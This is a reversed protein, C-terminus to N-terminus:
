RIEIQISANVGRAFGEGTVLPGTLNQGQDGVMAIVSPPELDPSWARTNVQLVYRGPDALVGDGIVRVPGFSGHSVTVIPAFSWNARNFASGAPGDVHLTLVTGDPLNTTGSIVGNAPIVSPVKIWVNLPQQAFAAISVLLLALGFMIRRM